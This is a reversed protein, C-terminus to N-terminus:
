PTRFVADTEDRIIRYCECSARELGARQVITFHGRTADILGADRLSGVAESVGARRVGLMMSLFEHTLEFTDGDIRDHAALMWRACRHQVTHFRNCAVSQSAAAFRASAYRALTSRLASGNDTERRLVGVALRQATGALQAVAQVSAVNSGLFASLGSMGEPGVGTVEVGEGGALRVVLSVMGSEPFYAYRIPEGEEQMVRGPVLPIREMYPQLRATEKDPLSALIRNRGVATKAPVAARILEM